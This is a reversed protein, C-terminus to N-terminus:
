HFADALFQGPLMGGPIESDFGLVNAITPVIDISEGKVENIQQNQKVVGPPGVVLCFIKRSVEDGTHDLAKRGNSDLLSNPQLNRGHEPAVILVTDNAMGPTNQITEWLHWLAYDAKRLNNCYQTFDSHCIDVDQMNVVTLEPKFQKIIEEAFFINYMDNNMVNQGISWPNYYVGTSAKMFADSIYNQLNSYHPEANSMGGDLDIQERTFNKNLFDRIKIVAAEENSSFNRMNGLVDYAQQSILATPAIFNAGYIPGYDVHNSYNLAPYPGLTNSIWWCNLPSKAPSSHKRYYEFVTPTPPHQKIDLNSSTYAGTIATTHGSYHGTPGQAYRFQKYLTGFTQLPAGTFPPLADMSHAIDASISENGPIMRPMLNGDAKDLSENIRVGGAYLCFVVHNVKRAGTAAFLRGSPLIYPAFVVGASAMAVKKIFTSRDM